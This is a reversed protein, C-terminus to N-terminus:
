VLIAAVSERIAYATLSFMTYHSYKILMMENQYNYDGWGNQTIFYLKTNWSMMLIVYMYMMLM